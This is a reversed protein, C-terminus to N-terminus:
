ANMNPLIRSIINDHTYLRVINGFNWSLELQKQLKEWDQYIEGKRENIEDISDPHNKALKGAGDELNQIREGLAALDREM